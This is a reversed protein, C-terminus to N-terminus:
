KLECVTKSSYSQEAHDKDCAMKAETAKKTTYSYQSTTQLMYGQSFTSSTRCECTYTRKCSALSMTLLCTVLVAKM